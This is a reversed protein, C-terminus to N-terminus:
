CNVVAGTNSPCLFFDSSFLKLSKITLFCSNRVAIFSVWVSLVVLNNALM